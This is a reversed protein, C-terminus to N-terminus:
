PQLSNGASPTEVSAPEDDLALAKMRDAASTQDDDMPKQAQTSEIVVISRRGAM